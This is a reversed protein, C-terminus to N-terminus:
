LGIEKVRETNLKIIAEKYSKLKTKDDENLNSDLLEDIRNLVFYLPDIIENKDQQTLPRQPEKKM